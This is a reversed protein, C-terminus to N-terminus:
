RATWGTKVKYGQPCIGWDVPCEELWNNMLISYDLLNVEGDTYLDAGLEDGTQLWQVALRALDDWDLVFSSQFNIWGINEGWAWGDFNGESDITVGYRNPDGFVQPDFNLWGVNEGWAYGHLLGNGDNFIGGYAGPSLNLWGINEAWIFGTLRNDAVTAGVNPEPISPEFNVWGINEGYAYQSGDNDPDINEASVLGTLCFLMVLLVNIPTEFKAKGADAIAPNKHGSLGTMEIVNLMVQM